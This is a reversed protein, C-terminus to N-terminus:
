TTGVIWMPPVLPLPLTHVRTAAASRSAPHRTPRYVEGWRTDNRSRIRTSPTGIVSSATAM